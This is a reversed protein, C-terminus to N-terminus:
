FDFLKQRTGDTKTEQVNRMCKLYLIQIYVREVRSLVTKDDAVAVSQELLKMSKNVYEDTFIKDNCELWIYFHKEPKVLAQTITPYTSYFGSRFFQTSKQM